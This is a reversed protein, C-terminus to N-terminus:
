HSSNLRTSKRDTTVLFAIDFRTQAWDVIPNWLANQRAVLDVPQDARYALLDTEAFVAISQAFRAPNPAIRDIAANALGTLPMTRPDIKMGQANWEAAILDSSRRTPFSHTLVHLYRHDRYVYFVFLM